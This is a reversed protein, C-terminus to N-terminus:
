KLVSLMEKGDDKVYDDNIALQEIQGNRERYIGLITKETLEQVNTALEGKLKMLSAPIKENGTDKFLLLFDEDKSKIAESMNLNHLKEVSTLDDLVFSC